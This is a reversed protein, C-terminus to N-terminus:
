ARGGIPVVNSITKVLTIGTIAEQYLKVPADDTPEWLFAGEPIDIQDPKGILEMFVAQGERNGLVRPKSLIGQGKIAAATGMTYVGFVILEGMKMIRIVSDGM